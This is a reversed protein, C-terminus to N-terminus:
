NSTSRLSIPRQVCRYVNYTTSYSPIDPQTWTDVYAYAGVLLMTLGMLWILLNMTLLPYRVYPNVDLMVTAETTAAIGAETTAATSKRGVGVTATSEFRKRDTKRAGDVPTAKAGAARVPPSTYEASAFPLEPQASPVAWFDDPADTGTDVAANRHAPRIATPLCYQTASDVLVPVPEGQLHTLPPTGTQTHVNDATQQESHKFQQTKPKADAKTESLPRAVPGTAPQARETTQTEVHTSPATVKPPPEVEVAQARLLEQPQTQLSEVVPKEGETRPASDLRGLPVDVAVHGEPQLSGQEALQVSQAEKVPTAVLNVAKGKSPRRARTARSQRAGQRYPVAAQSATSATSKPSQRMEGVKRSLATSAESDSPRGASVATKEPTSRTPEDVNSSATSLEAKRSSKSARRKKSKSKVRQSRDNM